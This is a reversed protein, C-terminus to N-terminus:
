LCEYSCIQFPFKYRRNSFYPPYQRRNIVPNGIYFSSRWSCVWKPAFILVLHLMRCAFDISSFHFWLTLIMKICWEACTLFMQTIYFKSIKPRCASNWTSRNRRHPSNEGLLEVWGWFRGHISCISKSKYPIRPTNPQRVWRGNGCM